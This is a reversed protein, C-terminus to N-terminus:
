YGPNTLDDILDIHFPLHNVEPRFSPVKSFGNVGISGVIQNFAISTLEPLSAVDEANYRILTPLARTDGLRHLSWMRVADYGSLGRLSSPRGVGLDSEIKKLGGSYGIRRLLRMLDIHACNRFINGLYHEVFPIDFSSGNFTVILDYKDIADRFEELNEGSVFSSYGHKDAVGILTLESYNRDLGTTEIDLFGTNEFFDPYLRWLEGKPLADRFYRVDGDSLKRVSERVIQLQENTRLSPPLGRSKRSLFDNWSLIGCKWIRLEKKPGVGPIHRFTSSIM